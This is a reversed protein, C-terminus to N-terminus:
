ELGRMFDAQIDAERYYQLKNELEKTFKRPTTPGQYKGDALSKFNWSNWLGLFPKMQPRRQNKYRVLYEWIEDLSLNTSNHKPKSFSLCFIHMMDLSKFTELRDEMFKWGNSALPDLIQAQDSVRDPEFIRLIGLFTPLVHQYLLKSIELFVTTTKKMESKNLKIHRLQGIWAQKLREFWQAVPVHHELLEVELTGIHNALLLADYTSHYRGKARPPRQRLKEFFKSNHFALVLGYSQDVGYLPRTPLKFNKGQDYTAVRLSALSNAIEQTFQLETAFFVTEPCVKKRYWSKWIQWVINMPLVKNKESPESIYNLLGNPETVDFFHGKKYIMGDLLIEAQLNGLELFLDQIFVGAKRLMTNDLDSGLHPKSHHLLKVSGLFSATFAQYFDNIVSKDVVLKTQVYNMPLLPINKSCQTSQTNMGPKPIGHIGILQISYAMDSVNTPHSNWLGKHRAHLEKHINSTQLEPQQCFNIEQTRKLPRLTVEAMEPASAMQKRKRSIQDSEKSMESIKAIQCCQAAQLIQSPTCNMLPVTEDVPKRSSDSPEEKDYKPESGKYLAPLGISLRRDAERELAEPFTSASEYITDSFKFDPFGEAYNQHSFHYPSILEPSSTGCLYEQNAILPMCADAMETGGSTYKAHAVADSWLDGPYTITEHLGQHLGQNPWIYKENAGLSEQEIQAKLPLQYSDIYENQDHQLVPRPIDYWSQFNFGWPQDFIRPAQVCRRADVVNKFTLDQAPNGSQMANQNMYQSKKNPFSEAPSPHINELELAKELHPVCSHVPLLRLIWLVKRVMIVKM